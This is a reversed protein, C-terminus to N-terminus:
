IYASAACRLLSSQKNRHQVPNMATNSGPDLKCRKAPVLCEGLGFVVLELWVAAWTESLRVFERAQMTLTLLSM